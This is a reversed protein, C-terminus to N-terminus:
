SSDAECPCKTCAKPAFNSYQLASLVVPPNQTADICALRVYQQDSHQLGARVDLVKGSVGFLQLALDVMQVKGKGQSKAKTPNHMYLTYVTSKVEAIHIAEVTAKRESVTLPGDIVLKTKACEKNNYFVHCNGASGSSFVAHMDLDVPSASDISAPANLDNWDMIAVFGAKVNPVLMPNIYPSTSEAGNTNIYQTFVSKGNQCTLTYRGPDARAIAFSFKGSSPLQKLRAAAKRAAPYVDIGQKLTVNLKTHDRSSSATFYDLCIGRVSGEPSPPAKSMFVNGINVVGDVVPASITVPSFGARSIIVRAISNQGIDITSFPIAYTFSGDALFRTVAPLTANPVGSLVDNKGDSSATCTKCTVTCMDAVTGKLATNGFASAQSTCKAVEFAILQACSLAGFPSKDTCVKKECHSPTIDGDIHAGKLPEVWLKRICEKKLAENKSVDVGQCKADMVFGTVAVQMTGLLNVPIKSAATSAAQCLKDLATIKASVTSLAKDDAGTIPDGKYLWPTTCSPDLQYRSMANSVCALTGVLRIKHASIREYKVKNYCKDNSAVRPFTFTTGNTAEMEITVSACSVPTASGGTQVNTADLWLSKLVPSGPKASVVESSTRITIKGPAYCKSEKENCLLGSECDKNGTCKAGLSCSDCGGGCDVGTELGNKKKDSCSSCVGLMEGSKIACMLGGKCDATRKCAGGTACLKGLRECETGGGDKCTELNNQKGDNCSVKPSPQGCVGSSNSTCNGSACDNAVVCKQNLNCRNSASGGCDVDSEDGDRKKNTYSVCTGGRIDKNGNKRYCHESSCDDDSTCVKADGCSDCAGGCDKDSEFGDRVGNSCSVCTANVVCNCYRGCTFIESQCIGMACDAHKSCATLGTKFEGRSFCSGAKCDSNKACGEGSACSNGLLVCEAGGCDTDTELETKKGDNCTVKPSPKLCKHTSANCNGSACDKDNGCGQGVNCRVNCVAGCDKDSEGGDMKNNKCSVCKQGYCMSSACDSHITCGKGDSCKSCSSGGCDADTEAGDKVGNKCSVCAKNHCLGSTCDPSVACSCRTANEKCTACLIGLSRCEAGGGDICTEAEGKANDKCTKSPKPEACTSVEGLPSNKHFCNGSACDANGKVHEHNCKKGVACLQPCAAGCDEDSEGGDKKGNSCSVCVNGFCSRSSCDSNQTCALGDACGNCVSGGCDLGTEDGNKHKDACSVCVGSSNKNPDFCQGSQCDKSDKCAARKIDCKAKPCAVQRLM